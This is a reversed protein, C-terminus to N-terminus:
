AGLPASDYVLVRAFFPSCREVFRAHEPCENQYFSQDADSNFLLSLSYDFSHDTVARQETAAPRGVFGDAIYSIAPLRALEREFEARQDASLDAKLWFYVNHLLM